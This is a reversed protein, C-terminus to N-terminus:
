FLALRSARSSLQTKQLSRCSTPKHGRPLPRKPCLYAEGLYYVAQGRIDPNPHRTLHWLAEYAQHDDKSIALLALAALARVRRKKTFRDRARQYELIELWFPIAAPDQACAVLDLLGEQAYTSGKGGRQYVRRYLEKARAMDDPTLELPYSWNWITSMADFLDGHSSPDDLFITMKDLAKGVRALYEPNRNIDEGLDAFLLWNDLPEEYKM